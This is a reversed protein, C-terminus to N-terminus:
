IIFFNNNTEIKILEGSYDPQNSFFPGEALDFNGQLWSKGKGVINALDTKLLGPNHKQLGVLVRNFIHMKM